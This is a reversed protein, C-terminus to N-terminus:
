SQLIMKKREIAIIKMWYLPFAVNVNYRNNQLSIGNPIHRYKSKKIVPNVDSSDMEFLCEGNGASCFSLKGESLILRGRIRNDESDTCLASDCVADQNDTDGNTRKKLKKFRQYYLSGQVIVGIPISILMWKIFHMGNFSQDKISKMLFLLLGIMIGFGIGYLIFRLRFLLKSPIVYGSFLQTIFGALPGLGIIVAITLNSEGLGYKLLFCMGLLFAIPFIYQGPKKMSLTEFLQNLM